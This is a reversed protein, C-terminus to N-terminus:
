LYLLHDKVLCSEVLHNESKCIFCIKVKKKYNAKHHGPTGCNYCIVDVFEGFKNGDVKKIENRVVVGVISRHNEAENVVVNANREGQVPGM